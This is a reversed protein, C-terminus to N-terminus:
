LACHTSYLENHSGGQCGCHNVGQPIEYPLTSPGIRMSENNIEDGAYYCLKLKHGLFEKRMEQKNEQGIKRSM